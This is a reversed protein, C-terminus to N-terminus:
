KPLPANVERVLIERGGGWFDDVDWKQGGGGGGVIKRFSGRIAYGTM